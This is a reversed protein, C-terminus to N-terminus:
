QAEFDFDYLYVFKFGYTYQYQIFFGQFIWLPGPLSVVHPSELMALYRKGEIEVIPEMGEHRITMTLKERDAYKFLELTFSSKNLIPEEPEFWYTHRPAMYMYITNQAKKAYDSVTDFFPIGREEMENIKSMYKEIDLSQGKQMDKQIDHYVILQQRLHNEQLRAYNHYHNISEEISKQGHHIKYIDDITFGLKRFFLIEKIRFIDNETYVRYGNERNRKPDLLGKKEYFRINQKSVGTQIEIEKINM